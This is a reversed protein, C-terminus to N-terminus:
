VLGMELAARTVESKSNVDLKKYIAKVHDGVTYLSINLLKSIEKRTLGKSVLVLVETERESLKINQQPLFDPNRHMSSLKHKSALEIHIQMRKLDVSSRFPKRFFDVAGVELGLAEDEDSSKATLFIVPIDATKDNSKIVKCTEYGDMEPMLVDLLILDPQQTKTLLAITEKGSTAIQVNYFHSIQDAIIKINVPEDDVILVTKKNDKM